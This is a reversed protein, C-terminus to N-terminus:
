PAPRPRGRRRCRAARQEDGIGAEGLEVDRRLREVQQLLSPERDREEGVHLGIRDLGIEFGADLGEAGAAM